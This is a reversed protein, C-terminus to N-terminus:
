GRFHADTSKETGLRAFEPEWAFISFWNVLFTQSATKPKESIYQNKEQRNWAFAYFAPTKQREANQSGLTPAFCDTVSNRYELFQLTLGSFDLILSKM